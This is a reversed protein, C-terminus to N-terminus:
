HQEKLKFAHERQRDEVGVDDGAKGCLLENLIATSARTKQTQMEVTCETVKGSALSM